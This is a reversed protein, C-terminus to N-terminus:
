SSEDKDDDPLNLKNFTCHLAFAGLCNCLNSKGLEWSAWAICFVNEFEIRILNQNDNTINGYPVLNCRLHINHINYRYWHHTFLHCFLKRPNAHNDHTLTEPIVIQSNPDDLFGLLGRKRNNVSIVSLSLKWYDWVCKNGDLTSSVFTISVFTISNRWCFIQHLSRTESPLACLEMMFYHSIHSMNKHEARYLKREIRHKRRGNQQHRAGDVSIGRIGKTFSASFRPCLTIVKKYVRESM